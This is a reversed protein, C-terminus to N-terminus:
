QGIQHHSQNMKGAKKQGGDVPIIPDLFKFIANIGAVPPNKLGQAMFSLLQPEAAASAPLTFSGMM